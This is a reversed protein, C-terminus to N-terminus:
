PREGPPPATVRLGFALLIAGLTVVGSAMLLAPEFSRTQAALVGALAPGIIQGAGFAATLMGITRHPAHPSLQRGFHMSLTVIGM